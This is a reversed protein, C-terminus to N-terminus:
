PQNLRVTLLLLASPIHRCGSSVICTVGHSILVFDGQSQLAAHFM